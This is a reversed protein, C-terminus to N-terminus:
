RILYVHLDQQNHGGEKIGQRVQRYGGRPTHDSSRLMMHRQDAMTCRAAIAGVFNGFREKAETTGM